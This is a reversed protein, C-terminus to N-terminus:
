SDSRFQVKIIRGSSKGQKFKEKNIEQQYEARYYTRWKKLMEPNRDIAKDGLSKRLLDLQYNTAKGELTSEIADLMTKAHSRNDYGAAQDALDPLVEITGRAITFRESSSNDVYSIWSYTGPSYALTTAATESIAHDDGDATSTIDFGGDANIFKYKLTWGDGAPYDTITKTWQLTDGAIIETPETTPIDAAM